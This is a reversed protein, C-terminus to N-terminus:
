SACEAAYAPASPLEARSRRISGPVDRPFSLEATSCSAASSTARGLVTGPAASRERVRHLTQIDLQEQAKIPVFRMTPRSAAEAIAEADRDDNKHSKVYPKVYEPPPM